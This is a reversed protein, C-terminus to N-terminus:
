QAIAPKLLADIAATISAQRDEKGVGEWAGLIRGQRDV